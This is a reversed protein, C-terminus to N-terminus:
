KKRSPALAGAFANFVLPLIEQDVLQFEDDRQRALLV